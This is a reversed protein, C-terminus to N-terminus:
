EQHGILEFGKMFMLTYTFWPYILIPKKQRMPTLPLNSYQILVSAAIGINICQDNLYDEIRTIKHENYM